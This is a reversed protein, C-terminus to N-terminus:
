GRYENMRSEYTANDTEWLVNSVYTEEEFYYQQGQQWQAQVKSITRFLAIILLVLQFCILAKNRNRLKILYKIKLVNTRKFLYDVFHLVASATRVTM